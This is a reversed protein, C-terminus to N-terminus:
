SASGRASSHRLNADAWAATIGFSARVGENHLVDLLGPINTPINAVFNWHPFFNDFFSQTIVGNGADALVARVPM